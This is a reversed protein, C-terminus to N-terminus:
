ISERDTQSDSFIVTIFIMVYLVSGFLKIFIKSHTVFNYYFLTTKHLKVIYGLVNFIVNFHVFSM